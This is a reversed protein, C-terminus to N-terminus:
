PAALASHLLRLLTDTVDDLTPRPDSACWHQALENAAGVYARMTLDLQASPIRASAAVPELLSCLLDAWAAHRARRHEELVPSVGVITVYVIQASRPDAAISAIYAETGRKLVERIDAGEALAQQFVKSVIAAVRDNARDYLEVLIENRNGFEEYFQRTSLGAAECIREISAAQYGATGYLELGAELLRQRREARREDMPRGRYRRPAGAMVPGDHGV